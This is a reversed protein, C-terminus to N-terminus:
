VIHEGLAYEAIVEPTARIMDDPVDQGTTILVPAVEYKFMMNLMTGFSDTEDLKTFIFKKINMPQFNDVIKELDREKMSIPLVLLTDMEKEISLLQNLETVFQADRYNRGATDIFVRDYTSFKKTAENFDDIDYVVEVPANLLQAYTNLQEIAAIRYTDLTVFAIKKQEDLKAQAALKALTTTKGVGTPGVLSIFRKENIYSFDLRALEKCLEAKAVDIMEKESYPQHSTRWQELLREGIRIVHHHHLGHTQLKELCVQITKPYSRLDQHQSSEAQVIQKLEAIEALLHADHRDQENEKVVQLEFEDKPQREIPRKEVLPAEDLAAIVEFQKKKFLGFFGGTSIVRSNLIVAENGLENKVKRMAEQMTSGVIKKINM